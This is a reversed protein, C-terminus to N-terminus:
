VTETITIVRAIRTSSWVAMMTNGQAAVHDFLM